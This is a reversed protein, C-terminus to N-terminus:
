GGIFAELAVSDFLDSGERRSFYVNIPVGRVSGTAPTADDCGRRALAFGLLTSRYGERLTRGRPSEQAQLYEADEPLLPRMRARAEDLSLAAGQAWQYRVSFLIDDAFRVEYTGNPARYSGVTIEPAMSSPGGARGEVATTLPAGARAEWQRRSLGLGGSRFLPCIPGPTATARRTVPPTAVATPRPTATPQPPGACAPCTLAVVALCCWRALRRSRVLRGM